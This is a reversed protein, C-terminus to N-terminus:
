AAIDKPSPKLSQVLSAFGLPRLDVSLGASGVTVREVLLRIIRTQEAPILNSWLTDFDKLATTITREGLSPDGKRCAEVVRAVLEPTMIMRRVEAIVAEEVVNAPLRQPGAHEQLEREKLLDTSVYYRYQRGGKKKTFAPTMAAGTSTFILGKLLAPLTTRTNSSRKVPDSKFIAHVKIEACRGSPGDSRGAEDRAARRGEPWTAIVAAAHTIEAEPMPEIQQDIVIIVKIGHIELLDTSVGARIRGVDITAEEGVQRRPAFFTVNRILAHRDAGDFTVHRALAVRAVVGGGDIRDFGRDGLEAKALGDDHVFLHHHDDPM